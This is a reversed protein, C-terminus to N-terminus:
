YSARTKVVRLAETPGATERPEADLPPGDVHLHLVIPLYNCGLAVPGLTSRPIALFLSALGFLTFGSSASQQDATNAGIAALFGVFSSTVGFWVCPTYVIM